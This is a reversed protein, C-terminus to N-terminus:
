AGDNERPWEICNPPNIFEIEIGARGAASLEAEIGASTEWGPFMLVWVADCRGAIEAGLERWYDESPPESGHAHNLIGTSHSLPSFILDGRTARGFAFASAEAVRRARIDAFRNWYPAALYILKAM